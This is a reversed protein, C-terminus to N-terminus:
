FWHGDFDDVLFDKGVGVIDLVNLGFYIDHFFYAMFVDDFEVVYVLCGVVHIDDSLEALIPIEKAEQL